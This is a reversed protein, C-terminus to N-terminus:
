GARGVRSGMFKIIIQFFIFIKPFRVECKNEDNMKNSSSSEDSSSENSDESTESIKARSEQKINLSNDLKKDLESLSLNKNNNFDDDEPPM